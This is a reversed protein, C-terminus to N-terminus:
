PHVVSRYPFPLMLVSHIHCVSIIQIFICLLSSSRCKVKQWLLITIDGSINSNSNLSHLIDVQYYTVSFVLIFTQNTACSLSWHKIIKWYSHFEIRFLHLLQRM